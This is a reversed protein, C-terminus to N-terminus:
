ENLLLRILIREYPPTDPFNESVIQWPHLSGAAHASAQGVSAITALFPPPTVTLFSKHVPQLRQM